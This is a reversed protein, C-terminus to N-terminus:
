SSSHSSPSPPSWAKTDSPPTSTVPASSSRSPPSCSRSTCRRTPWSPHTRRWRPPSTLSARLITFTNSIAKLQLAIYPVVGVVAIVTVLEGLARSKGYRSSMFDALSTIRYLRASGCSRASCWGGCWPWSPRASTSRRVRSWHHCGPRRQRLLDVVDRLRVPVPRLHLRQQHHQPSPRSTPGTTPSPSSCASTPWRPAVIVWTDLMLVAGGMGGRCSPEWVILLYAWLVPVGFVLTDLDFVRPLSISCCCRAGGRSSVPARCGTTSM